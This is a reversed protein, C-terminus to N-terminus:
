GGDDLVVGVLEGGVGGVVGGGEVGVGGGGALEDPCVDDDAGDDLGVGLVGEGVGDGLVGGGVDVCVGEFEGFEDVM